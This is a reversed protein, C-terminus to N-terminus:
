VEPFEDDAPVSTIKRDLFVRCKCFSSPVWKDRENLNTMFLDRRQECLPPMELIDTDEQTMETQLSTKCILPTRKVDGQLTTVHPLCKFRDLIRWEDSKGGHEAM